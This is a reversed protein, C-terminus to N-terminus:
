KNGVVILKKAKSTRVGGDSGLKVRYLYVGTQLQAGSNTCLNWNVTYTSNESVGSEQHQWLLRGSMDFVEVTVDVTCGNRDHAIIFTTSERAPNNTCSITFTPQQRRVVNFRLEATSVNNMIDWARFQLRHEGESLEPIYYYTTGSTYSGFDFMFNDNLSFTLDQKGDICLQMDHGIGAGSANIGDRDNVEAVFYPTPNVNGGNQFSPSNLYCYISPGISDNDAIQSEGVIFRESYGQAIAKHDNSIAWATILGTENSYNIDKPVPFEFAFQGDVVNNRGSYINKTRDTYTFAKTAEGSNNRCEVTESNDRVNLTVEGNFTPMGEIHGKVSAMAGAKMQAIASMDNTSIGCVSDIVIQATPLNLSMAPDGILAFHRSNLALSTSGAPTDNKARRLAEGVAIPKGNDDYTLLHRMFAQHIIHNYTALVTRTTGMVAVAGGNANLVAKMGINDALRDFPMFDCGITAWLPLNANRFSAFDSLNLVKEHSFQDERGHGVYDMILAGQKQQQKVIRSVEPYTNGSASSERKYADWMVKKVMYGPHAAIVQDAVTNCDKMHLNDDGDDGMFFITNLWAGRNEVDTYAILKDVIIKADAATTVPFRGVAVDLKDTSLPMAGEGDDLLCFFGDDVCCTRKDFSEEGEYALLYDDPSLTRCEPTKMRNDWVSSGLLLLYKPMDAATEARDYLMKLYHRYASADPTGSSFENYLEDAPVINVRMSDREEHLRKVREAQALLKQSTPIIIVMDAQPDAHHNQNTINYVYEPTPFETTALDPLPHNNDWRISAYDLRMSGGSKVHLVLREKGNPNRPVSTKATQTIQFGKVYDSTSSTITMARDFNCLTGNLTVEVSTPGAATFSVTVTSKNTPQMDASNFEIVLSDGAAVTRSDFLNRGGQQYSYADVEYLDHRGYYNPIQSIFAESDVYVPEDTSETLFYYGYDSYPNRTRIEVNDKWSVPGRGYFLRKGGTKLTPLERLDDCNILDEATLTENLLNGGYGYIKVKSPDAFGAQRILADTLQYIGDTAVRIKAWKGQALVSNRTYRDAPAIIEADETKLPSNIQAIRNTIDGIAPKSSKAVANRRLMFSALVQFKGNRYVVPCFSTQLSPQKRNLVVNTNLLPTDPPLVNTLRRYNAIDASPMDAYEPYAIDVSYVSDRYNAPLAENHSFLPMISDVRVEDSTLNYFRQAVASVSTLCLCLLFHIVRLNIKM